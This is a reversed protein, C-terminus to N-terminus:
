VEIYFLFSVRLLVPGNWPQWGRPQFSETSTWCHLCSPLPSNLHFRHVPGGVPGTQLVGPQVKQGGQGCGWKSQGQCPASHTICPLLQTDVPSHDGSLLLSPPRSPGSYLVLEPRPLTQSSHNGHHGHCGTEPSHSSVALKESPQQSPTGM